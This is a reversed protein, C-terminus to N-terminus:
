WSRKCLNSDQKEYLIYDLLKDNKQKLDNCRIEYYTADLKYNNAQNKWYDLGNKLCLTLVLFILTVLYSMITYISYYINYWNIKM